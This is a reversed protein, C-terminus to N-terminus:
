VGIRAAVLHKPCRVLTLRHEQAMKLGKKKLVGNLQKQFSQRVYNGVQDPRLRRGKGDEFHFEIM